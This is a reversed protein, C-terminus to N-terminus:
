SSSTAEPGGLSVIGLDEYTLVARYEIKRAALEARAWDGRDLITCAGVVTAGSAAVVDLADLLSRGTSVTDEFILCRVGERLPAGEIRRGTGHEKEAKRVSFWSRSSCVAAVHAVPDAGMTMGGIADFETGDVALQELVTEAALLLDAGRALARRMDVYDHSTGGSSLRFPEARREYGRVRVVEILAARLSELGLPDIADSGAADSAGPDSAGAM